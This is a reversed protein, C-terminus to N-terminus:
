KLIVKKAVNGTKVIYVGNNLDECGMISTSARKVLQGSINYLEFGANDNGLVNITKATVVIQIDDADAAVGEVGGPTGSQYFYIADLSFNTGQVSGALISIVNGRFYGPTFNLTPSLRKVDGLTIDIAVWEGDANLQGISPYIAGNDNFNDGIAIRGPTGDIMTTADQSASAESTAWTDGDLIVFAISAPANDARVGIHVHTDDTLGRFDVGPTNDGDVGICLGAGSWDASGVELAIYGNTQMDVGPYSGDGAVMTNEWIYLNRSVNDIRYDFVTKGADQLNQVTVDDLQFAYYTDGNTNAIGPQDTVYTQANAVGMGCAALAALLTLNKM